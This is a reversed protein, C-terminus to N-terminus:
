KEKKHVSAAIVLEFIGAVLWLFGMPINKVFLFWTLSVLIWAVALIYYGTSRKM